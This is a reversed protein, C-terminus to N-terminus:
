PVRNPRQAGVAGRGREGPAGARADRDGARGRLPHDRRVNRLVKRGPRPDPLSRERAAGRDRPQAGAPEGVRLRSERDCGRPSSAALRARDLVVRVVDAVLGDRRHLFRVGGVGAGARASVRGMVTGTPAAGSWSRFAQHDVPDHDCRCPDRAQAARGPDARLGLAPERPGAALRARSASPRASASGCAAAAVDVEQAGTGAAVACADAAFGSVGALTGAAPARESDGVGGSGATATGSAEGDAAARGAPASAGREGGGACRCGLAWCGAACAAAADPACPLLVGSSGVARESGTGVM